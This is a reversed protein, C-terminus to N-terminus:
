AIKREPFASVTQKLHYSIANVHLLLGALFIFRCGPLNGQFFHSELSGFQKLGQDNVYILQGRIDVEYVTEPLLAALEQFGYQNEETKRVSMPSSSM